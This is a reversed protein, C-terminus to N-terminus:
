HIILSAIIGSTISILLYDNGVKVWGTLDKNNFLSVWGTEYPKPRAVRPAQFGYVTAASALMM